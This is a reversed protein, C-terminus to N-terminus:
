GVGAPSIGAAVERESPVMEILGERILRRVLVLRSPGDLMGALDAVVFDGTNVMTELVPALAEPMRLQRDALVAVAQGEERRVECTAGPRMRVASGDSLSHLRVLQELNGRVPPPPPSWFERRTWDALEDADLARLWRALAELREAIEGNLSGSTAFGAPLAEELGLDGAARDVLRRIVGLWTPGLIGITIHLSPTDLTAAAHPWGRPLYLSDGPELTVSSPADGHDHGGAHHLDWRKTGFVQLALVDHDDQHVGFGQEGAPTLYANAQVPASLATALGHCFSTLPPWSRQLGSVLVTAGNAYHACFRGPDIMAGASDGDHGPSTYSAPDVLAGSRVLSAEPYRLGRSWLLADLDAPSLLDDFGGSPRARRVLPRAGWYSTAFEDADGVCRTLPDRAGSQLSM